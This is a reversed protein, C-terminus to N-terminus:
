PLNSQAACSQIAGKEAGTIVGAKKLTNTLEAVCSVFQGHNKANDACELIMETISKGNYNRDLVGTDCGDIVITGYCGTFDINTFSVSHTAGYGFLGYFVQMKTMDGSFTMGAPYLDPPGSHWNPVYFGQQEGNITMYAEGTTSSTAHLTLVIDYTGGTNYTAGNIAGWMQAQWQDVGDRDFWIAYNAWPNPPTSPLNYNGEGQGGGKQLILKDDLDSSPSGPPDPNFTNATWDYDTALWVGAGEVMWTPNFNGYGATRVGFEAWAHTSGGFDDVLGNGDYKFSLVLDCSTLDWTEPFNGTQFGGSLTIDNFAKALSNISKEQTQQVDLIDPTDQCSTFFIGFAFLLVVFVSLNKM